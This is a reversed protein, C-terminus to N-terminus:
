LYNKLAFYRYRTKLLKPETLSYLAYSVYKNVGSKAAVKACLHKLKFLEVAERPIGQQKRAWTFLSYYLKEQNNYYTKSKNQVSSFTNNEHGTRIAVAKDIFGSKLHCHYSLKVIFDRDEHMKLSENLRLKPNEIAKKRLTTAILSFFTGFALNIQSLGYFVDLGEAPHNVTTLGTDNIVSLYKKKGAETVFEVGIAGFIGDIEPNKFYKREADFRNPLYFDDADLFAIFEQSALDMGLNRTASVGHNKKDPHQLFTVISYKEAVEECIKLSGDTSGDDILLIEKVESFQLASLVAKEIFAAANYVPIIVSITM